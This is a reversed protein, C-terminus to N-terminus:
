SKTATLACLETYSAHPPGYHTLGDFPACLLWIRGGDQGNISGNSLECLPDSQTARSVASSERANPGAHVSRLQTKVVSNESEGEVRIQRDWAQVRRACRQGDGIDFNM